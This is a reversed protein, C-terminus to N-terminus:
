ETLHQEICLSDDHPEGECPVDGDYGDGGGGVSAFFPRGGRVSSDCIRKFSPRHDLGMGRLIGRAWFRRIRIRGQGADNDREAARPGVTRVQVFLCSCVRVFVVFSVIFLFHGRSSFVPLSVLLSYSPLLPPSPSIPVHPSPSISSQLNLIATFTNVYQRISTNVYASLASQSAPDFTASATNSATENTAYPSVLTATTDFVFAPPAVNGFHRGGWQHASSDGEVAAAGSMAAGPPPGGIWVSLSELFPTSNGITGNPGQALAGHPPGGEATLVFPGKAPRVQRMSRPLEITMSISRIPYRYMKNPRPSRLFFLCM